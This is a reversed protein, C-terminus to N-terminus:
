RRLCTGHSPREGNRRGPVKGVARAFAKEAALLHGAPDLGRDRHDPGVLLAGGVNPREVAQLPYEENTERM